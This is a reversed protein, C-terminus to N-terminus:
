PSVVVSVPGGDARLHLRDGRVQHCAGTGSVAAGTAFWWPPLVIESVGDPVGDYELTLTHTGADWFWVTRAPDTEALARPYARVVADVSDMRISGDPGVLSFDEQNWTEAADSYEWLTGHGQLADFADFHAGSYAAIGELGQSGGFEGVLVPMNWEAGLADWGALREAVLSADLAGGGVFISPDYSHPAFVLNDGSPREMHTTSQVAALGTSDFFVLADPDVAQMRSAMRSYFPTLTEREWTREDGLGNGPENIIEYGIVGPRSAHRDVMRDWMSEFAAMVPSDDAWFDDFAQAVQDNTLYGFFWDACDHRDEGPDDVTWRPFGDGCFFEGYVDQHFDVITWMGRDAAGDLLADYKRAWAEDDQGEVPEFAAWSFPVRLTTFGWEQARDLYTALASAHDGEAHDFPMYPPFKSRGGTNIGRLFVRRGHGDKLHREDAHLATADPPVIRCTAMTDASVSGSRDNGPSCALLLLPLLRM